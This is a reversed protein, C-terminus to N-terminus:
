SQAKIEQITVPGTLAAVMLAPTVQHPQMVNWNYLHYGAVKFATAALESCFWKNPNQYKNSRWLFGLLGLYDYAKGVQQDLWTVFLNITDAPVEMYFADAPRDETYECYRVGDWWAEWIMIKNVNNSRPDVISIHSYEVGWQYKNILYSPLELISRLKGDPLGKHGLIYLRM